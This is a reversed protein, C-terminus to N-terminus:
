LQCVAVLISMPGSKKSSTIYSSHETASTVIRFRSKFLVHLLSTKNGDFCYKGKCPGLARSSGIALSINMLTCRLELSGGCIKSHNILSINADKYFIGKRKSDSMCTTSFIRKKFFM